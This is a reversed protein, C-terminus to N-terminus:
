HTKEKMKALGTGYGALNDGFVFLKGPYDLYAQVSFKDVVEIKM